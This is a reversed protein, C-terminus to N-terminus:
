LKIKTLSIRLNILQLKDKSMNHAIINKYRRFLEEIISQGFHTILLSEAVSRVCKAFEDCGAAANDKDNCTNSSKDFLNWDIRTVELENIRFSGEKLVEVKVEKPSPMYNPINFSEM